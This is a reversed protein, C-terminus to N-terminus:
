KEGRRFVKGTERLEIAKRLGRMAFESHAPIGKIREKRKLILGKTGKEYLTLWRQIAWDDAYKERALKLIEEDSYEMEFLTVQRM